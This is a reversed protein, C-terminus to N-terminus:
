GRFSGLCLRHQYAKSMVTVASIDPATAVKWPGLKQDSHNSNPIQQAPHCSINRLALASGTSLLVTVDQHKWDKRSKYWAGRASPNPAPYCPLLTSFSRLPLPITKESFLSQNSIYFMKNIFAFGLRFSATQQLLSKSLFWACRNLVIYLM